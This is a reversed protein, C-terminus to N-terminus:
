FIKLTRNRKNERTLSVRQFNKFNRKKKLNTLQNNLAILYQTEKKIDINTIIRNNVKYLISVDEKSSVKLNFILLVFM